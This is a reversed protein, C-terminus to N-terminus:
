GSIKIFNEGDYLYNDRVYISFYNSDGLYPNDSTLQINEDIIEQKLENLYRNEAQLTVFDYGVRVVYFLAVVGFGLFLITGARTRSWIRVEKQQSREM